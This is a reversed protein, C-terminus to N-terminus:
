TRRVVAAKIGDAELEAVWQREDEIAFTSAWISM